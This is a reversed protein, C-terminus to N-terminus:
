ARRGVTVRERRLVLWAVLEGAWMAVWAGVLLAVLKAVPPTLAVLVAVL